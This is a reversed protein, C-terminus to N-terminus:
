ETTGSWARVFAECLRKLKNQQDNVVAAAEWDSSILAQEKQQQLAEIQEHFALVIARAYEPLHAIEGYVNPFFRCDATPTENPVDLGLIAYIGRRVAEVNTGLRSWVEAVMSDPCRLLGLLLHETGVYNYQLRKADEVALRIVEKAPLRQVEKVALAAEKEDLLMQEVERCIRRKDIGLNQFVLAAVATGEKALGLLLHIPRISDAQLRQAENFTIEMVKRARDTLRNWPIEAQMQNRCKNSRFVVQGQEDFSGVSRLLLV